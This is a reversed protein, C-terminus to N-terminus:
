RMMSTSDAMGEMGSHIASDAAMGGPMETDAMYRYIVIMRDNMPQVPRARTTRPLNMASRLSSKTIAAM